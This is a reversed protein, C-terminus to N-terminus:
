PAAQAPQWGQRVNAPADFNIGARRLAEHVERIHEFDRTEMICSISVLAVDASSFLRDHAVEKVSAGTAALVATLHALSGPRDSVHAIIRCLRGDAALGRDIIRSILTV